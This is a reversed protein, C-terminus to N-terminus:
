ITETCAINFVQSPKDPDVTFELRVDRYGLRSGVAVYTGPRLELQRQDFQGLKAVKYVVVDTQQDSRLTVTVPTSAQQLLHELEAIQQELVPGRPKIGKALQLMRATAEAVATDSLRGPQDIASRFQKDLRARDRSRALGERAYLVTPDIKQAQEYADVAQQWQESKEYGAGQQQLSALRWATAATEVEQLASSAESSGPQLKAARGFAKRAADFRNDDLAAYGESMAENFQQETYAATVRALEAGSRQHAPDLAVAKKLQGIAGPLDGAAEAAAAADLLALLQPLAAVRQRLVAAEANGPDIAEARDLAATAAELDGQELSDSAQALQRALAAPIGEQLAQLQTLGEQYRAKAAEYDRSRFLEDGATAAAAVAAFQEPAWQQVGRQELTDQLALLDELVDQAEKRLKALQADSWPSVDASVPKAAGGNTAAAAAGDAKGDATAPAAATAAEQAASGPSAVRQPLWFIVLAALLVLAGLAPLVWRPTGQPAQRPPPTGAPQVPTPQVAEFPTPQVQENHSSM